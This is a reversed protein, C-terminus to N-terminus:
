AVSSGDRADKDQQKGAAGGDALVSQGNRNGTKAEEEMKAMLVKGELITEPSINEVNIQTQKRNDHYHIANTGSMLGQIKAMLEIAATRERLLPAFGPQGHVTKTVFEQLIEGDGKCDECWEGEDAGDQGDQMGTGNCTSCKTNRYETKIVEKSQKSREWANSAERIVKELRALALNRNHDVDEKVGHNFLAWVYKMDYSVQAPTVGYRRSMEVQSTLGCCVDDYMQLIRNLRVLSVREAPLGANEFAEIKALRNPVSRAMIDGILVVNDRKELGIGVMGWIMSESKV